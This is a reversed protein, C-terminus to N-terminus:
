WDILEEKTDTIQLFTDSYSPVDPYEDGPDCRVQCKLERHADRAFDVDNSWPSINQSIFISTFSGDNMNEQISIPIISHRHSTHYIVLDSENTVKELPGFVRSLWSVIKDHPCDRVYIEINGQNEARHDEIKNMLIAAVGYFEKIVKQKLLM